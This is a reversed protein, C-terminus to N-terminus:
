SRENALEALRPPRHQLALTLQTSLRPARVLPMLEASFAVAEHHDERGSTRPDGRGGIGLAQDCCFTPRLGDPDSHPDPNVRTGRHAPFLAVDSQIHVLGGSYGRSGM